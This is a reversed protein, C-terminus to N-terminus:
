RAAPLLISDNEDRPSSMVKGDRTLYINDRNVGVFPNQQFEVHGDDYLVNQGDGEHNPSNATQMDTASSTTTVTLLNVAGPVVGPNLDAAVALEAAAPHTSQYRLQRVIVARAGDDQYPNHFSYSLHKGTDYWNSWDGATKGRGGFNWPKAKSQPCVFVEPTIEQTRLLLYLAASVDNPGPRGPGFPDKAASGTGWTPVVQPGPAYATRPYAGRNENSYLLLAQGIQRLRSSCPYSSSDRRLRSTWALVITVVLLIIGLVVLMELM